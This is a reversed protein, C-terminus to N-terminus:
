LWTRGPGSRLREQRTKFSYQLTVEHGGKMAGGFSRFITERSYGLKFGRSVTFGLIGNISKGNRVSIGFLMKSSHTYFIGVDLIHEAESFKRLAVCPELLDHNGRMPIRGQAYASYFSTRADRSLWTTALRNASVGFKVFKSEYHMGFSFDFKRVGDQLGDLDGDPSGTFNLPRYAGTSHYEGSVGMSLTHSNKLPLHYAFDITSHFNRLFAVQDQYVNGGIGFGSAERRSHDFPPFLKAREPDTLPLQFSLLHAKPSGSIGTYMQRFSYMVSGRGQGAMAPNYILSNTLKQSFLSIEQASCFYGPAVVLLVFLIRKM